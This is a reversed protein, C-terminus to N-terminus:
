LEAADGVTQEGRGSHGAFLVLHRGSAGLGEARADCAVEARGRLARRHLIDAAVAGDLHRQALVVRDPALFATPTNKVLFPGLPSRATSPQKDFSSLTFEM